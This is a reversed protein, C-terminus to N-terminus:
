LTTGVFVCRKGMGVELFSRFYHSFLDKAKRQPDPTRLGGLLHDHHDPLFSSPNDAYILCPQWSGRPARELSAVYLHHLEIGDPGVKYKAFAPDIDASQM